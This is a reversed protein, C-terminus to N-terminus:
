IAAPVFLFPLVNSFISNGHINAKSSRPSAEAEHMRGSTPNEYTNTAEDTTTPTRSASECQQYSNRCNVKSGQQRINALIHDTRRIRRLTDRNKHLTMERICMSTRTSAKHQPSLHVIESAFTRNTAPM